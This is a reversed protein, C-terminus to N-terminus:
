VNAKAPAKALARYGIVGTITEGDIQLTAPHDFTVTIEKGTHITVTKKHKVHEGKFISPFIMLSRLRGTGHFMM